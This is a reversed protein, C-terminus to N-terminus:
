VLWVLNKFSVERLGVKTFFNLALPIMVTKSQAKFKFLILDIGPIPGFLKSLIFFAILSVFLSYAHFFM